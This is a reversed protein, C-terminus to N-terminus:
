RYGVRIGTASDPIQDIEITFRARHTHKAPSSRRPKGYYVDVVEGNRDVIEAWVRGYFRRSSNAPSSRLKGSVLAGGETREVQVQYPSGRTNRVTELSLESATAYAPASLGAWVMTAMLVSRRTLKRM